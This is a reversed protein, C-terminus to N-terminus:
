YPDVKTPSKSAVALTLAVPLTTPPFIVDAPTAFTFVNSTLDLVPEAALTTPFITPPFILVAPLTLAVPLM